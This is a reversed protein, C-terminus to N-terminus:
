RAPYPGFVKTVRHSESSDDVILVRFESGGPSVRIVIHGRDSAIQDLGNVVVRNAEHMGTAFIDRPGPYIRTSRLRNFVRATPHASDWVSLLWV